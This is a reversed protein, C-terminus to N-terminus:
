NRRLQLVAAGLVGVVLGVVGYQYGDGLGVGMVGYKYGDVLGM